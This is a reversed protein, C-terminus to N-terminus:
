HLSAGVPTSHPTDLSAPVLTYEHIYIRMLRMCTVNNVNVWVVHTAASEPSRESVLSLASPQPETVSLTCSDPPPCRLGQLRDEPTSERPGDCVNAAPPVNMARSGPPVVSTLGDLRADSRAQSQSGKTQARQLVLVAAAKRRGSRM